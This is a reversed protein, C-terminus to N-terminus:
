DMANKPRPKMLTWSEKIWLEYIHNMIWENSNMICPEYLVNLILVKKGMAIFLWKMCTDM